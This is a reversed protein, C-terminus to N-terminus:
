LIKKHLKQKLIWSKWDVFYKNLLRNRKEKKKSKALWISLMSRTRDLNENEKMKKGLTEKTTELESIRLELINRLRSTEM